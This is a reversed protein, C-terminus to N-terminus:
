RSLEPNLHLRPVEDCSPQIAVKEILSSAILLAVAAVDSPVSVPWHVITPHKGIVPFWNNIFKDSLVILSTFPIRAFELGQKLM